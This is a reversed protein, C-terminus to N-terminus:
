LSGSSTPPLRGARHRCPVAARARCSRSPCGDRPGWKRRAALTAGTDGHSVGLPVSGSGHPGQGTSRATAWDVAPLGRCPDRPRPGGKGWPEGSRARSREGRGRAHLCSSCVSLALSPHSLPPPRPGTAGCAMRHASSKPVEERHPSTLGLLPVPATFVLFSPEFEWKLM